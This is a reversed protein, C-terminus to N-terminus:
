EYRVFACLKTNFVGYTRSLRLEQGTRNVRVVIWNM